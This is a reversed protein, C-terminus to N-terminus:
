KKKISSDMDVLVEKVLKLLIKSSLTDMHAIRNVLAWNLTDGPSVYKPVNSTKPVTFSIYSFGQESQFYSVFAGYPIKVSEYIGMHLFKVRGDPNIDKLIGVERGNLLVLADDNVHESSDVAMYLPYKQKRRIKNENCPTNFLLAVVVISLVVLAFKQIM